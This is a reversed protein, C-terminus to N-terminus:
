SLRYSPNQIFIPGIAAEGKFDAVNRGKRFSCTGDCCSCVQDNGDVATWRNAAVSHSCAKHQADTRKSVMTAKLICTIYISNRSEQSFRFADLQLQLMNDQKRPLFQSRSGMVKADTLCGHNEVFVYRPVSTVDPNLTAVCSDVFLRLPQHDAVVVSAEINLIDGLFYINSARQLQWNDSMLRLSFVLREEAFMNAAYPVWTPTVANSSVNYRRVYHCEINIVAGHSRVVPTSGIGKPMYTLVFGYVLSDTMM